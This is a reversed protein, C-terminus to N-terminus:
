GEGRPDRDLIQARRTLGVYTELDTIRDDVEFAAGYADRGAGILEISTFTEAMERDTMPRVVRGAIDPARFWLREGPAIVSVRLQRIDDPEDETGRFRLQLTCDLAPGLGVNLVSVLAEHRTKSRHIEVALKPLVQGSRADHLEGLLRANQRALRAAWWALAAVAVLVAVGLVTDV